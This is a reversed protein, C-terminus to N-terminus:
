MSRRRFYFLMALLLAAGAPATGGGSTNCGGEEGPWCVDGVNMDGSDICAFGSPCSGEGDCKEACFRNGESDGGCLSSLCDEPSECQAGLGGMQGPGPVCRGAVCVEDDACDGQQCPEGQTVNVTKTTPTDRNDWATVSVEVVGGSLTAPANFIYPQLTSEAIVVGNLSVEVKTISGFDDEATAEIVFGPEVFDGNVPRIIEVSPPTPTGPGFISTIEQVSNQTSSGCQCNRPSYEGCQVAQNQFTKKGCSNLYTMPDECLYEHELGFAHATEQAVTECISQASGYINAFSYTIANNIVGCSFPAIGGVGNGAGIEQPTGAVIAEFHPVNGPDQDTITVGFPEYMGKVCNVVSDWAMDGHEFASVNVTGGIISSRNTRSDNYGPYLTCGGECRNLFIISSDVGEPSVIDGMSPDIEVYSARPVEATANGELILLGAALGLVSLVSVFRRM